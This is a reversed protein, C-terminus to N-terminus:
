LSSGGVMDYYEQWCDRWYDETREFCEACCTTFNSEENAYATNMRRREVTRCRRKCIPCARRTKPKSM